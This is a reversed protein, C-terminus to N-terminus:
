PTELLQTGTRLTITSIFILMNSEQLQYPELKYTRGCRCVDAMVTM